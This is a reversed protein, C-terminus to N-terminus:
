EEANEGGDNEKEVAESAAKLYMEVQKNTLKKEGLQYAKYDERLQRKTVGEKLRGAIESVLVEDLNEPIVEGTKEKWNEPYKAFMQIQKPFKKLYSEAVEDTLNANTYIKGSEFDQIIVGALLSYACKEKMKGETKLYNYVEILADRYCDNCNTKKFEKRLVESYLEAISEKDSVSFGADFRARLDDAMNLAEQYEMM